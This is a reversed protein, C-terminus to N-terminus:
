HAVVKTNINAGSSCSCDQDILFPLHTAALRCLMLGDACWLWLPCLLVRLIPPIGGLQGDDLQQLVGLDFGLLDSPDPQGPLHMSQHQQVLVLVREPWRNDPTILTALRLGVRNSSDDSVVVQDLNSAIRGQRAKRRRLQDPHTSVLRSNVGFNTFHKQGLIVNPKTKGALEGRFNRISRSCRKEVDHLAAPRRLHYRRKFKVGVPKRFHMFRDSNRALQAGRHGPFNSEFRPCRDHAATSVLSRSPNTITNDRGADNRTRNTRRTDDKGKHFLWRAVLFTPNMGKTM